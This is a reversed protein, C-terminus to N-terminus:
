IRCGLKNETNNSPSENGRTKMFDKHIEKSIMGKKCLYKIVARVEVKAMKCTQLM